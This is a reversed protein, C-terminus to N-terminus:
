SLLWERIETRSNVPLKRMLNKVHVKVTEESIFHEAAIEVNTHGEYLGRLTQAERGTLKYEKAVRALQEDAPDQNAGAVKSRLSSMQEQVAASPINLKRAIEGKTYGEVLLAAIRQEEPLFLEATDPTALTGAGAGDGGPLGAVADGEYMLKFLAASLTTEKHREFLIYVLVIFVIASIAASALLPFDLIRLFEPEWSDAEWLAASTFLDFALGLSAILVPRKTGTLFFIPLTLIFFETYSGGLGDAIGLPLLFAHINEGSILALVIGILFLGMGLIFGLREHGKDAILGFLVFGIPPLLLGLLTYLLAGVDDGYGIILTHICSSMINLWLLVIFTVLVLILLKTPKFSQPLLREDSQAVERRIGIWALLSLLAPILFALEKPPEVIIWATYLAVCLAIAGMYRTLGNGSSTRFVGYLRRAMAPAMLIPTIAYLISGLPQPLFAFVATILLAVPATYSALRGLENPKNGFVLGYVV